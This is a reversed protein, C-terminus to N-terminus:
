FEAGPRLGIANVLAKLVNVRRFKDRTCGGDVKITSVKATAPTTTTPAVSPAADHPGGFSYAHADDTYVHYVFAPIKGPVPVLTRVYGTGSMEGREFMGHVADRVDGHEAWFGSSRLAKTVDFATFMREDQMLGEIVKAVETGLEAQTLRKASM